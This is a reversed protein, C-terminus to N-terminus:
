PLAQDKVWQALGPVSGTDEHIRTLNMEVLWLPFELRDIELLLITSVTGLYYNRTTEPFTPMRFNKTTKNKTKKNKEKAHPLELAPSPVHAM